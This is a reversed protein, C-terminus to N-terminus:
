SRMLYPVVESRDGTSNLQRTTKARPRVPVAESISTSSHKEQCHFMGCVFKPAYGRHGRVDCRHWTTLATKCYCMRWLLRKTSRRRKCGVSMGVFFVDGKGGFCGVSLLWNSMVPSMSSQFWNKIQHMRCWLESFLVHVDHRGYITPHNDLILTSHERCICM